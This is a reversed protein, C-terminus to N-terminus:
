LTEGKWYDSIIEMAAEEWIAMRYPDYRGLTRAGFNKSYYEVHKDSKARFFLVGGYGDDLSVKIAYAFLARAIGIYKKEENRMHLLNANSHAANELYIIEVAFNGDQEEYSMLGLLEENDTRRLAVKNPMKKVARSTWRTQWDRTKEFDEQTAESVYAPIRENDINHYVYLSIEEM